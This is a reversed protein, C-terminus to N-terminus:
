HGCGGAAIRYIFTSNGDRRVWSIAPQPLEPIPPGSHLYVGGESCLQEIATKPKLDFFGGYSVLRLDYRPRDTEGPGGLIYFRRRNGLDAAMRDAAMVRLPEASDLWYRAMDHLYKEKWTYPSAVDAWLRDAAKRTPLPSRFQGPDLYVPTNPPVNTEIWATSQDRSLDRGYIFATKIGQWVCPAVIFAAMTTCILFPRLAPVTAIMTAVGFPTLAVIMVILAGDHQL